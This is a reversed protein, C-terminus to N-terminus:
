LEVCAKVDCATADSNPPGGNLGYKDGITGPVTISQGQIAMSWTCKWGQPLYPEKPQVPQYTEAGAPTGSQAAAALAIAALARVISRKM